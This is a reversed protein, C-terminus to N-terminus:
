DAGKYVSEPESRNQNHKQYAEVRIRNWFALANGHPM